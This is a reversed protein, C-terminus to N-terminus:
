VPFHLFRSLLLSLLMFGVIIILVLRIWKLYRRTRTTLDNALHVRTQCQDNEMCALFSGIEVVSDRCIGKGCNKCTGVAEKQPHYFCNM